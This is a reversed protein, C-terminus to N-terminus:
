CSKNWLKEYQRLAELKCVKAYINGDSGLLLDVSDEYVYHEDEYEWEGMEIFAESPLDAPMLSLTITTM